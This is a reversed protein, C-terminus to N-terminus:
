VSTASVAMVPRPGNRGTKNAGMLGLFGIIAGTLAGALHALPVAVFGAASNDVFLTAGTAAEFATKGVLGILLASIVALSKWDRGNWRDASVDIAFLVFLATDIGSLGRYLAIEPQWTLVACAIVLSSVLCCASWAARGHRECLTGLLAFMAADWFLHEWNCHTVHCTVLRWFQGNFIAARDYQAWQALSPVAQLILVPMLLWVSYPIRSAHRVITQLLTASENSTRESPM